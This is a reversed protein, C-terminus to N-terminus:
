FDEDVALTVPCNENILTKIESAQWIGDRRAVEVGNKFILLTPLQTVQLVEYLAEDIHHVDCSAIEFQHTSQLLALLDGVPPCRLCQQSYCKLVVAGQAVRTELEETTAIGSAM